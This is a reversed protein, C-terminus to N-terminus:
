PERGGRIPVATMTAIRRKVAYEGPVASVIVAGSAVQVGAGSSWMLSSSAARGLARSRRHAGPGLYHLGTGYLYGDRPRHSPGLPQVRVPLQQGGHAASASTASRPCLTGLALSWSPPPGLSRTARMRSRSASEGGLESFRTRAPVSTSVFAVAFDFRNEAHQDRVRVLSATVFARTLSARRWVPM